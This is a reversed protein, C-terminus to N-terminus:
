INQICHWIANYILNQKHTVCLSIHLHGQLLKRVRLHLNSFREKFDQRPPVNKKGKNLQAVIEGTFHGQICPTCDDQVTKLFKHLVPLLVLADSIVRQFQNPAYWVRAITKAFCNQNEFKM